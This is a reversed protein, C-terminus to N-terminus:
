YSIKHFGAEKASMVKNSLCLPCQVKDEYGTVKYITGCTACRFTFYLTNDVLEEEVTIKIFSNDIIKNAIKNRASKLIPDFENKNLKMKKACNKAKLHKIDMLKIAEMEKKSLKVEVNRIDKEGKM